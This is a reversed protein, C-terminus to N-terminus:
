WSSTTTASAGSSGSPASSRGRTTTSSSRAPRTTSWTPSRPSCRATSRLTSSRSRRTTPCRPDDGIVGLVFKSANLLKIALRRGVKMQGEDFATDTGPRGSAAWYRVADSGYQELLDIPTVVNGKSKSMKKRDPDLVWGRSRPTPGRAARRVRLARAGRHLVALHPHDRPGAPAPGDPYTARSCTPTRTGGAPSRRPSRRRRGPTWSTPTPWSGAPRAASTRPTARPRTARRTSPLADEDPVLPRDYDPEGDADLPYWVPFPVGFFRQRSVLWDGNLGEVWSEYRRRCTTRTGTCSAAASSCRPGCARRRSRRQPHVVPPHHRDRAPPRGERLVEGHPHDAAARRPPRRDRAAARRDASRAQKIRRARSSPGTSPRGTRRSTSRRSAGHSAGTGARRDSAGAPRARAVVHRRHPRRVHLDDRHRQGERSRGSPARAGAGARRVAAHRVEADFLPQYREDDPHAVLAVCAPILEPRTTEIVVDGEGDVRPFRITHYAGPMERDELEAQAVATRFDVDWLTPAEAQYAEGRALMRLFARQSIRQAQTGITTYTMSWDVSLGLHRWLEEFKQEDEAVLRDCLEVFNRRRDRRAQKRRSRPRRSTPTTPCRRTAASASTTRCGASPPCATTTGAWRTSSRSVRAHPPLPRDTDTHTYSFVHGVHLSGSVTPPPTDISFVQERPRSRDFRYRATPMGVPRGSTRWAKWARAEGARATDDRRAADNASRATRDGPREPREARSGRPVINRRAPARAVRCGDETGTPRGRAVVHGRSPRAVDMAAAVGLRGSRARGVVFAEGPMPEGERGDGAPAASVPGPDRRTQPSTTCRSGASAPQTAIRWRTRQMEPDAM